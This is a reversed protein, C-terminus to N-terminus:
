GGAQRAPVALLPCPAQRLVQETVSGRLLDLVSDHGATAMVILDAVHRDAAALIEAVVDGQRDEARWTWEPGEPLAPVPPRSEGVHLLTIAVKRDQDGVVEAVRRAFELAATFDPEVDIPVLISKVNLDGNDPSVFDRGAGAPVFLTMTRSWRAIAEADSRDFWRSVGQRGETGLVILDCPRQNLFAATALVPSRGRVAIKRTNVRLEEYVASRPSGAELLGWRELTERVPPFRSWDGGGKEDPSVHLITFETQRLLAIALAHAFARASTASFDTPHLVSDVLPPKTRATEQM